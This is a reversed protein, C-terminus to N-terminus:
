LQLVCQRCKLLKMVLFREDANLKGSEYGRYGLRIFAFEMGAAKVQQWDIVGQHDSVDVGPVTKGASCFLQQGQFYFDAPTYPNAAPPSLQTEDFQDGPFLVVLLVLVALLGALIGSLIKLLKHSGFVSM